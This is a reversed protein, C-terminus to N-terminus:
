SDGDTEGTELQDLLSRLETIEESSLSNSSYLNAVFRSVSNGYLRGLFTRNEACKYEEASIVATYYNTRTTRDCHVYGKNALRELSAMLTSLAWKRKDRIRELIHGSTVPKKEEWLALMIELEADGLPKLNGNSNIIRVGTRIM